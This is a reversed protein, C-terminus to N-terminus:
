FKKISSELRTKTPVGLVLPAPIRYCFVDQIWINRWNSEYHTSSQGNHQKSARKLLTRFNPRDHPQRHWCVAIITTYIWEPMSHTRTLWNQTADKETAIDLLIAMVADNSCSRFPLDARTFLEYALIGFAYVDSATTFRNTCIAEPSSWRLPIASNSSAPMYYYLKNGGITRSLGFDGIKSVWSLTVLINRAALDRHVFCKESLYVMGSLVDCLVGLSTSDSITSSGPHLDEGRLLHQLSGRNCLEFVIDCRHHKTIVGLLSIVCPHDFQASVAAERLMQDRDIRQANRKPSKVAVKITHKSFGGPQHLLAEFVVGVAGSGLEHLLVLHKTEIEAPARLNVSILEAQDSSHSSTGFAPNPALDILEDDSSDSGAMLRTQKGQGTRPGVMWGLWGKAYKRRHATNGGHTHVTTTSGGGLMGDSELTALIQTFSYPAHAQQYQQWSKRAVALLVTVLAAIIGLGVYLAYDVPVVDCNPGTYQLDKCDCDFRFDFPITDIQKGHACRQQRPGNSGFETDAFRIEIPIHEVLARAGAGDAVYRFYLLNFSRQVPNSAHKPQSRQSGAGFTSPDSLLVCRLEVHQAM